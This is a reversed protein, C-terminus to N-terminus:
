FKERVTQKQLFVYWFLCGSEEFHGFLAVSIQLWDYRKQLTQVAIKYQTQHSVMQGRKQRSQAAIEYQTLHQRM